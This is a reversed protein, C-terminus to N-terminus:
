LEPYELLVSNKNHYKKYENRVMAMKAEKFEKEYRTHTNVTTKSHIIINCDRKAKSKNFIHIITQGRPLELMRQGGGQGYGNKNGSGNVSVNDKDKSPLVILKNGFM